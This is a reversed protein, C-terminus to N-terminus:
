ANQGQKAPVAPFSVHAKMGPANSFAPWADDVKDAWVRKKEDQAKEAAANAEDLHDRYSKEIHKRIFWIAASTVDEDPEM